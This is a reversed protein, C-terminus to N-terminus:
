YLSMKFLIVYCNRIGLVLISAYILDQFYNTFLLAWFKFPTDVSECYGLAHKPDNVTAVLM